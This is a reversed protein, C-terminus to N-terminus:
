DRPLQILHVCGVLVVKWVDDDFCMFFTYSNQFLTARHYFLILQVLKEERNFIIPQQVSFFLHSKGCAVLFLHRPWLVSCNLTLKSRSM